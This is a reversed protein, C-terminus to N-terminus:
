VTEVIVRSLRRCYGSRLLRHKKRRDVFLKM